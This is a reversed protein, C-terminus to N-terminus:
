LARGESSLVLKSNSQQVNTTAITGM